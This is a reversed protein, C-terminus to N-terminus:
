GHPAARHPIQRLLLFFLAAAPRPCPHCRGRSEAQVVFRHLHRIIQNAIKIHERPDAAKPGPQGAHAPKLTDAVALDVLVGVGAVAGDMIDSLLFSVIWVGVVQGVEVEQAPSEGALRKRISALPPTQRRWLCERRQSQGAPQLLVAGTDAAQFHERFKPGHCLVCM